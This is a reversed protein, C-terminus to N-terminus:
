VILGSASRSHIENPSVLPLVDNNSPSQTGMENNKASSQEAAVPKTRYFILISIFEASCLGLLLWFGAASIAAVGVAGGLQLAANFIAGVTGSQTPPATRLIAINSHTFTLATGTTGICFAPFVYSWYRSPSNAFPLLTTAVLTLGQGTLIITKSEFTNSLGGSSAMVAIGLVGIPLLHIACRVPSWNYIDQWLTSFQYLVSTWWVIPFLSVVFIISFNPYFWTKPPLAATAPPIHNEWWIFLGLFAVSIVLPAMVIPSAWGSTSGSTVALIFLLLSAPLVKMHMSERSPSFGFAGALSEESRSSIISPILISCIGAVPLAVMAELFFIWRWSAFQVFIAGVVLGVINGAAVGGSFIAIARAQETPDRHLQVLLHLASPITLSAAIGIVARLVLFVVKNSIFGSVLSLAGFIAIGTVFVWKPKYVDSVHGSCLLFSAFTLQYASILWVTDNGELGIAGSISPIASFFASSNFTDLFQSFCFLFLLARTTM